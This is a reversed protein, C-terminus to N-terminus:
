PVVAFFQISLFNDYLPTPVEIYGKNAIKDREIPNNLFYNIKSKMEDISNVEVQLSTLDLALSQLKTIISSDDYEEPIDINNIASWVLADDYENPLSNFWDAVEANITEQNAVDEKISEVDTKFNIGFTIGGILIGVIPIAGTAFGVIKPINM